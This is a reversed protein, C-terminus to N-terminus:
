YKVWGYHKFDDGMSRVIYAEASNAPISLTEKWPLNSTFRDTFSSAYGFIEGLKRKGKEKKPLPLAFFEQTARQAEELLGEDIGHNTVQFFGHKECAERIQAAIEMAAKHDGSLFGQLDIVPLVLEDFSDTTPRDEENWVLENPIDPKHSLVAADFVFPQM